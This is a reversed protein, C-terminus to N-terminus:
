CYQAVNMAVMELVKDDDWISVRWKRKLGFFYIHVNDSERRESELCQKLRAPDEIFFYCHQSLTTAVIVVCSEEMLNWSRCPVPSRSISLVCESGGGTNKRSCQQRWMAQENHQQSLCEILKLSTM